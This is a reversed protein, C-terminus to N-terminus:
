QNGHHRFSYHFWNRGIHWFCYRNDMAVSIRRYLRISHRLRCDTYRKGDRFQSVVSVINSMDGGSCHGDASRHIMQKNQKYTNMFDIFELMGIDKNLLKGAYLELMSDLEGFLENETIERYFLCAQSYNNFAESVEYGVKNERHQLLYQNQNIEIRAAKINGQNRNFFPLDFGIGVGAFNKWVGGYRDYNAHVTFNPIRLSKEYALSKEYYKVQMQQHRLDPRNEFATQLLRSLLFMEPTEISDTDDIEITIEPSV